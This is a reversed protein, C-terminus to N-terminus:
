SAQNRAFTRSANFSVRGSVESSCASACKASRRAAARRLVSSSFDHLEDPGGERQRVALADESVNLGFIRARRDRDILPDGCSRTSKDLKGLAPARAAYGACALEDNDACRIDRGIGYRFARDPYQADQVTGLIPGILKRFISGSLLM